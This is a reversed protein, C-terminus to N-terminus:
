VKIEEVSTRSIAVSPPSIVSNTDGVTFFARSAFTPRDYSGAVRAIRAGGVPSQEGDHNAASRNSLAQPVEGEDGTSQSQRDRLVEM